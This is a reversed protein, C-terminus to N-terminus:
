PGNTAMCQSIIDRSARAFSRRLAELFQLGRQHRARRTSVESPKALAGRSKYELHKFVLFEAGTGREQRQGAVDAHVAREVGIGGLRPHAIDKGHDGPADDILAALQPEGVLPFSGDQPFEAAGPSRHVHVCVAILGHIAKQFALGGDLAGERM